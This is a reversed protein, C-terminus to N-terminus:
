NAKKIKVAEKIKVRKLEKVNFIDRSITRILKKYWMKKQKRLRVVYKKAEEL